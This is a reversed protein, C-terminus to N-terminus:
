MKECIAKVQVNLIEAAIKEVAEYGKPNGAYGLPVAEKAAEGGKLWMDLMEYSLSYDKSAKAKEKGVLEPCIHMLMGTEFAGAHIDLLGEDAVMETFWDPNYKPSFVHLYEEDGKFGNNQLDMDEMVYKIKMGNDADAKEVAKVISKIHVPDGHYNFCYVEEFGFRNLNEFIECLVQSFTEPQLSFSGAFAGTCHNIGYYLPPAIVAQKGYKELEAKVLKCIHSSWLIDSALPLHPGHEEIVGIPFLVVAKQKGLKEIDVYNMEAMTSEFINNM